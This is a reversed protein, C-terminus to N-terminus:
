GDQRKRVFVSLNMKVQHDLDKKDSRTITFTDVFIVPEHRELSNIFTAFHIFDAVFSTDIYNEGIYNCNAIASGQYNTKAKISLSNIRQNNAIQRIDFTLSSLNDFSNVFINLKGKLQELETRLKQRNGKEQTRLAAIYVQAKEEIQRDLQQDSKKQPSLVVMNIAFLLVFTAAWISATLTLYKKYNSEM